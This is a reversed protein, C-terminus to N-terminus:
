EHHEIFLEFWSKSLDSYESLWCYNYFEIAEVLDEFIVTAIDYWAM